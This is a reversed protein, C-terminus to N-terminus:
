AVRGQLRLADIVQREIEIRADNSLPRVLPRRDGHKGLRTPFALYIRGDRGRRVQVDEIALSDLEITVWGILGNRVDLAPAPQFRLARAPTGNPRM